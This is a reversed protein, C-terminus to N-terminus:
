KEKDEARRKPDEFNWELRDIKRTHQHLTDTTIVVFDKLSRSLGDFQSICRMAVWILVGMLISFMVSMLSILITNLGDDNM